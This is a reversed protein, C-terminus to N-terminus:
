LMAEAIDMAAARAGTLVLYAGSARGNDTGGPFGFVHSFM